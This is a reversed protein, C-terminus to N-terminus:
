ANLAELFSQFEAAEDAKSAAFAMASKQSDTLDTPDLLAMLQQTDISGDKRRLVRSDPNAGFFVLSAERIVLRGFDIGEGPNYRIDGGNFGISVDPLLGERLLVQADPAASLEDLLQGRAFLGVEGKDTEVSFESWKGIPLMYSHQRLMPLRGRKALDRAAERIADPLFRERDVDRTSSTLVAEIESGKVSVSGSSKYRM